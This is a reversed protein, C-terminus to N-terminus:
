EGLRKLAEQTEKSAKDLSLSQKLRLVASDKMNMMEYCRGQWYYPDADLANVTSAFKFVNLADNYQKGDFYVLGKEIYAEMYTYDNAICDDFFDIAKKKNGTRANYIGLIFDAHADYERGLGLKKVQTCILLARENKQEAYLNALGLMADASPYIRLAKDYSKIATLTDGSDEAIRGKTFWLGFNASDKLILSDMQLLAEKYVGISDLATALRLRAGTSDPHQKVQALLFAVEDPYPKVTESKNNSATNQEQVNNCAALLLIVIAPILRLKAMCCFYHCNKNIVLKQCCSM